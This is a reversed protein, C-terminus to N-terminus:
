YTRLCDPAGHCAGGNCRGKKFSVFTQINQPQLIKAIVADLKTM